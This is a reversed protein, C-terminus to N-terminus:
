NQPMGTINIIDAPLPLAYRSDGPKLEYVTGDAIRKIIINRGELNLRKIDPWRLGRFLLEKRREILVTNLAEEKGLGALPTFFGTEYRKELLTNLDDLGEDIDNARVACEARILLMEATTLGTFFTFANGSYSGKFGMAMGPKFSNNKFFAQKRKDKEDYSSYLVSDIAAYSTSVFVSNQSQLCYFVMEDNLLPFPIAAAPKVVTGNYDLLNSKIALSMDAYRYASDYKRMSLYARALLGYAAARSPRTVVLPHDPLLIAAAKLDNLVQDYCQHVTARVSPVNFDDSLRLVIGLDQSSTSEDYARAHDWLLHLFRFSRHFLASAKINNWSGANQATREVKQVATLCYNAPYVAAYNQAWDNQFYYDNYTWTYLPAYEPIASKVLEYFEQLAFYDDAAAEGMGPSNRNMIQDNDLMAQLDELSQMVQMSKDSKEELFKTCAGLMFLALGLMVWRLSRASQTIQIHKNTM